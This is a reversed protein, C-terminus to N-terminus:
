TWYLSRSQEPWRTWPTMSEQYRVATKKMVGNLRRYDVCLRLSGDKMWFLVVPKSWPNESEETVGQGNMDELMGNVEAQKAFRTKM